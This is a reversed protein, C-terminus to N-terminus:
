GKLPYVVRCFEVLFQTLKKEARCVSFVFKLFHAWDAPNKLVKVLLKGASEHPSFEGVVAPLKQKFGDSITRICLSPIGRQSCLQFVASSEMEVALAGTEKAIKEKEEATRILSNSTYFPGEHLALQLKSCVAHVLRVMEPSSKERELVLEGAGIEPKLSGAFGICLVLDPSHELLKQAAEEARKRGVGSIM